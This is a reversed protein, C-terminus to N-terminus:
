VKFRNIFTYKGVNSRVLYKAFYKEHQYCTYAFDAFSSYNGVGLKKGNVSSNVGSVGVYKMSSRNNGFVYIYHRGGFSYPYANSSRISATPNWMMDDGNNPALANTSAQYSDEGFAINLREGTELNIAYGPFWSLGYQFPSGPISDVSAEATNCGPAGLSIGQKDVSKHRRPELKKSGSPNSVAEDNEELVISRTWKSKDKTFVIDVSALGRLDYANNLIGSPNSESYAPAAFVSGAKTSRTLVYPSWSGGIM